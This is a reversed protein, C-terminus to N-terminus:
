IKQQGSSHRSRHKRSRRRKRSRGGFSANYPMVIEQVLKRVYRRAYLINNPETRDEIAVPPGLYKLLRLLFYGKRNEFTKDFSQFFSEPTGREEGEDVDVYQLFFKEIKSRMDSVVADTLLKKLAIPDLYMETAKEVAFTMNKRVDYDALGYLSPDNGYKLEKFKSGALFHWDEATLTRGVKKEIAAILKHYPALTEVGVLNTLILDIVHRIGPHSKEPACHPTGPCKAQPEEEEESSASSPLPDYKDLYKAINKPSEPPHDSDASLNRRKFMERWDPPLPNPDPPCHAPQVDHTANIRDVIDKLEAIKALDEQSPSDLFAKLQGEELPVDIPSYFNCYDMRYKSKNMEFSTRKLMSEKSITVFPEHEWSNSCTFNTGDFKTCVILHTNHKVVERGRKQSAVIDVPLGNKIFEEMAACAAPPNNFVQLIYLKFHDAFNTLLAQLLRNVEPNGRGQFIEDVSPKTYKKRHCRAIAHYVPIGIKGDRRIYQVMNIFYFDVLRMAFSEGYRAQTICDRDMHLVPATVTSTRVPFLGTMRHMFKRLCRGIFAHCTLFSGQTYRPSGSM